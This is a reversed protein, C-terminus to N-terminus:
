FRPALEQRRGERSSDYFRAITEIVHLARAVETREAEDKGRAIREAFGRLVDRHHDSPPLSPRYCEAMGHHVIREADPIPRGPAHVVIPAEPSAPAIFILGETGYLKLEWLFSRRDGSFCWSARVSGLVGNRWALVGAANDDVTCTARSGDELRRDPFVTEVRGFVSEAPGLLYTLGSVLYIGLDALVGWGAKDKDLFWAAHVPGHHALVADASTVAGIAGDRILRRALDMAASADFPLPSFIGRSRAAAETIRAADALSTAIPKETLVHKGADLAAVTLEAHSPHPTAIIVGDIAPDSLLSGIDDYVKGGYRAAAAESASRTRSHVGALAFGPLAAIGPFYRAHAIDGCGIVGVVIM